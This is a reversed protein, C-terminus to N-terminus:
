LHKKENESNLKDIRSRKLKQKTLFKTAIIILFISINTSIKVGFLGMVSM